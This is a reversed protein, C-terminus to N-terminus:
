PLEVMSRCTTPESVIPNYVGHPDAIGHARARRRQWAFLKSLFVGLVQSLLKGDRALLFRVRRPLSLVWQRYPVIPLVHNVLDAATGAM